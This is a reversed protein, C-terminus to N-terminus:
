FYEAPADQYRHQGPLVFDRRTGRADTCLIWSYEGDYVLKSSELCFLGCGMEACWNWLVMWHDVSGCKVHFCLSGIVGERAIEGEVVM